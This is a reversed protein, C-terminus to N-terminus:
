VGGDVGCAYYTAKGKGCELDGVACGCVWHMYRNYQAGADAPVERPAHNPNITCLHNSSSLGIDLIDDCGLCSYVMLGAVWEMTENTYTSSSRVSDAQYFAVAVTPAISGKVMMMVTGMDLGLKGWFVKLRSPKKAQGAEADGGAKGNGAGATTEDENQSKGEKSVDSSAIHIDDPRTSADHSDEKREAAAAPGDAM